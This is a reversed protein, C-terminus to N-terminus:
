KKHEKRYESPSIGALKKFTLTFYSRTGFHLRDSISQLDENTTVLLVKAHEIKQQNIYENISTGIETKFKRSLYYETYGSRKALYELSLDDETHMSIYDACSAIAPTLNSNKKNEHVTRIFENYMERSVAHLDTITKADMAQQIYYDGISYARDPTIGGEIAARTALSTFVIVSIKAQDSPNDATVQVGTSYAQATAQATPNIHGEKIAAMLGQEAMYTQYRDKESSADNRDDADTSNRFAQTVIQHTELKEGTVSNHLMLLLKMMNNSSVVPLESFLNIFGRRFSMPIDKEETLKRLSKMSVNTHFCPGIVHIYSLTDEQYEFAAAWMLGYEASLLLPLRSKQSHEMMYKHVGTTQLMASLPKAHPSDTDLLVGEPSYTWHNLGYACNINERFLSVRRYVETHDM